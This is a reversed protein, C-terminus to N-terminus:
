INFTLVFNKKNIVEILKIVIIEINLNLKYIILYVQNIKRLVELIKLNWHRSVFLPATDFYLEQFNRYLNDHNELLRVLAHKLGYFVM